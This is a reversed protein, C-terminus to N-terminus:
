RGNFGRGLLYIERSSARSARPKFNSVSGFGGRFLRRTADMGEGEFCKVLLAGDRRLVRSAFDYALEVLYMSRPQDIDKMGSLNPAMDSIVLDVQSEGTLELLGQLSSDETFDGHIIEVGEIPEIKLIDLAIVRGARGVRKVAIQSWGGPAAGLDVVLAGARLIHFKDDIELLKYSARSRFGESRARRVYEDDEHDAVWRRSSKSRKM